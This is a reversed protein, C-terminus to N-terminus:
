VLALGVINVVGNWGDRGSSGWGVKSIHQNNNNSTSAMVTGKMLELVITVILVLEVTVDCIRTNNQCMEKLM